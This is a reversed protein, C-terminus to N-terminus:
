RTPPSAAPLEYVPVPPSPVGLEVVPETEPVTTGEHAMVESQGHPASLEAIAGGEPGVGPTGKSVVGPGAIEPALHGRDDPAPSKKEEEEHEVEPEFAFGPGELKTVRRKRRIFWWLLAGVLLLAAVSGVVIGAIAGGSLSKKPDSGNPGPLPTLDGSGKPQITVIDSEPMPASFVAQSVNFVRREWDVTLYMEQLLARGLTYQSENAARRIPFYNTREGSFTFDAELDFAAYPVELTITQGGRVSSGLTMSLTPSLDRLAARNPDPLTYRNSAEQYELAFASAITDCVSRPLWLDPVTSDVFALIGEDLLDLTGNNSKSTISQVGIILEEDFPV